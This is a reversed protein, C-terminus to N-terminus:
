ACELNPGPLMMHTPRQSVRAKTNMTPVRQDLQKPNLGSITQCHISKLDLYIRSLHRLSPSTCTMSYADMNPQHALIQSLGFKYLLFSFLVIAQQGFSVIHLLSAGEAHDLNPQYPLPPPALYLASAASLLSASCFLFSQFDRILQLPPM